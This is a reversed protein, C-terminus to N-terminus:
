GRGRDLRLIALALPLLKGRQSPTLGFLAVIGALAIAPPALLWDITQGNWSLAAAAGILLAGGAFLAASRRDLTFGFRARAFLAAGILYCVYAAFFAIGVVELGGGRDLGLLALAAFVAFWGAEIAFYRRLDATALLPVAMVWAIAKLYNGLLLWQLLPIAPLFEAAFLMQVVLPKLVVLATLLPITACLVLTAADQLHRQREEPNAAALTPLVYTGFSSLVLSLSQMGIAWGAAFLGAVALGDAHVIGARISLMALASAVTLAVNFGFFGAFYRFEAAAPRTAGEGRLSERWRLRRLVLAAAGLQVALPVGILAVLVQPSDQAIRAVPFAILAAIAAGGVGLLALAGIARLANVASVATAYAIGLAASIACLMVTAVVPADARDFLTQGVLEPALLLVGGMLLAGTLTLLMAARFLRRRAAGQRAALGQVLGGAGMAGLGTATDHVQRTLSYFGVGSAGITQALVKNVILGLLQAGLTAGGTTLLAKLLSRM